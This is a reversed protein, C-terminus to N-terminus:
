EDTLLSGNQTPIWVFLTNGDRGIAEGRAYTMGDDSDSNRVNLNLPTADPIITEPETVQQSVEEEGESLAEASSVTRRTGREGTHTNRHRKMDSRVRFPKGCVDCPHPKEGTLLLNM